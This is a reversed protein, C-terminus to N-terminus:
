FGEMLYQTDALSVCACCINMGYYLNIPKILQNEPPWIMIM